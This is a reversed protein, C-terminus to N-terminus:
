NSSSGVFGKIFDTNCFLSLNSLALAATQGFLSSVLHPTSRKNDSRQNVASGPCRTEGQSRIVDQSTHVKPRPHQEIRALAAAGARQAGESPAYRDHKASSGSQV